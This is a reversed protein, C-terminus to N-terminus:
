EQPIERVERQVIKMVDPDFLIKHHGHVEVQLNKAGELKCSSEPWIHNDFLGFISTICRNVTKEKKLSHVQQSDPSLERLSKIPFFKVIRSGGFPTAIAILKKVRGDSNYYTLIYKGILGGKSHAIIIVDRLDKEDILERVLKATESIDKVNYGLHELAYIPHGKLSLPETIVELFHWKELLGPILIIPAKNREVLGLFHEPPKRYIFTHSQKHIAHIYDRIWHKLREM